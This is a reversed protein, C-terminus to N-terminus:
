RLIKKTQLMIERELFWKAKRLDNLQNQKDEHKLRYRAIYKLMSGLNYPLSWAEIVKIPEYTKGYARYHAPNIPNKRKRKRKLKPKKKKECM